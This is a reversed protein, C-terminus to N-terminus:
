KGSDKLAALAKTTGTWKNMAWDLFEKEQQTSQFFQGRQRLIDENPVAPGRRLYLKKQANAFSSAHKAVRQVTSAQTDMAEFSSLWEFVQKLHLGKNRCSSPSAGTLRYMELFGKVAGIDLLADLTAPEAEPSADETGEREKCATALKELMDDVFRFFQGVTSRLDERTQWVHQSPMKGTKVEELTSPAMKAECRATLESDLRSLVPFRELLASWRHGAFRKRKQPAESTGLEQMEDVYNRIAAECLDPLM